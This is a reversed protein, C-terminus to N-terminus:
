LTNWHLVGRMMFIVARRRERWNDLCYARRITDTLEAIM